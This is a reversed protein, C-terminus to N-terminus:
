KSRNSRSEKSESEKLKKQHERKKWCPPCYSVDNFIYRGSYPEIVEGCYSCCELNIQNM